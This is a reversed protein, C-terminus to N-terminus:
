DTRSKTPEHNPRDTISKLIYLTSLGRAGCGDLSLLCLGEKDLRNSGWSKGVIDDTGHRSIGNCKRPSMSFSIAPLISKLRGAQWGLFLLHLSSPFASFVRECSFSDPRQVRMSFSCQVTDRYRHAFTTRLQCQTAHAWPQAM